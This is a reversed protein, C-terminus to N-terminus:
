IQDVKPVTALSMHYRTGKFRLDIILMGNIKDYYLRSIAPSLRDDDGDVGEVVLSSRFM